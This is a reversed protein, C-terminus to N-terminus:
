NKKATAKKRWDKKVKVQLDLFVKKDVIKELELRAESGIKKLMSAKKGIIIGKQSDQEVYITMYIRDINELEEYKEIETYVCHPVEDNTNELIKERVIEVAVDRMTEDTVEDDDYIKEGAPLASYIESLLTDLNRGTKASIKATPLNKDFLLKYSIINEERKLQDKILDVKNYVLIIPTKTNLLNSVVWKDGRGASTSADVLFLILDSDPIAFKAEDVLTQGFNNIPKHVGPTDIFIIQGESTTHIGKIRRRTTQAKDTAIVIKQGLIKNLLTSKGVNPRGIIAVYGCKYDKNAM